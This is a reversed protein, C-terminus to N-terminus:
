AATLLKGARKAEFRSNRIYDQRQGNVM